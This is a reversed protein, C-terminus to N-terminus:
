KRKLIKPQVLNVLIGDKIHCITGKKLLIQLKGETLYASVFRSMDPEHGVLAIVDYSSTSSIVEHYDSIAAGPNLRKDIILKVNCYKNLIEATTKAREAESSIVISPKNFTRCFNKFIKKGSKIGKETLPRAMDNEHWKDRNVAAIHRILYIEM